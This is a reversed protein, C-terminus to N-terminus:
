KCTGCCMSETSSMNCVVGFSDLIAIEPAVCCLQHASIPRNTCPKSTEIWHEPHLGVLFRTAFSWLRFDLTAFQSDGPPRCWSHPSTQGDKLIWFMEFRLYIIGKRTIELPNAHKALSRTNSFIQPTFSPWQWQSDSHRTLDQSIKHPEMELGLQEELAM